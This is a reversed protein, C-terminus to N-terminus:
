DRGAAVWFGTGSRATTASWAGPLAALLDPPSLHIPTQDGLTNVWLLRGGPALVRDVEAPFLLMNVLLLGDFRRDPFPLAAADARVLPALEAPAHALMGASLDSAIVREVMSTLVRTGNGTGSGLELWRGGLDVGGRRLGDTVAALRVPDGHTASWGEAMGDFLEAVKRARGGSWGGEFAVQRTVNRMPHDAGAFPEPAAWGADDALETLTM